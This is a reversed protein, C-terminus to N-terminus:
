PHILVAGQRGGTEFRRNAEVISDLPWVSDVYPDYEGAEILTLLYTLDSANEAATGTIVQKRPFMQGLSAVALILKGNPALLRRGREISVGGAVDFVIDYRDNLQDLSTTQYDIVHDAGLNRVMDLSAGRAVGTVEADFHKAIQVASSGVLGAAGNVLVRQGPQVDAKTRLFYLSTVGGFLMAAAQDHTVGAPKRVLSKGPDKRVFEAWSGWGTGCVEDGPAFETVAAGVQEIVGSFSNGLVKKRPATIGLALRAPLAFGPPFKAARIRADGATVSTSIVKVLVEDPEISPVETEVIRIVEPPGYTPVLATKM